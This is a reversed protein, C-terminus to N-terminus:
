GKKYGTNKNSKKREPLTTQKDQNLPKTLHKPKIEDSPNNTHVIKPLANKIRIEKKHVYDLRVSWDLIDRSKSGKFM